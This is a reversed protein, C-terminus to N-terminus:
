QFNITKISDSYIMLETGVRNTGASYNLNFNKQKFKSYLQKIEDENDYTVIWNNNLSSIKNALSSHDDYNYFNVYLSQGKKFYPPDFFCFFPEKIEKIIKDIFLEADYNYFEINDKMSHIYNIKEIISDKNFRCDIKYKGKQEYGGIPGAYIIGSRNTRNLFLTSFALEVENQSLDKNDQIKRQKYWEDVTINITNILEILPKPNNLITKWLVYISKDIDNLLLKDVVNNALLELALGSGGAFGEIYICNSLNNKEILNKTYKYLKTKGGPYRLPSLTRPM